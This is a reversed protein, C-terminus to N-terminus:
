AGCVSLGKGKGLSIWLAEAHVLTAGWGVKTAGIGFGGSMLWAAFGSFAVVLYLM